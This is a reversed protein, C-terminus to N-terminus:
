GGQTVPPPAMEAQKRADWQEQMRAMLSDKGEIQMHEVIYKEDVIGEAYMWKLLEQQAYRSSPLNAGAKVEIDFDTPEVDKLDTLEFKEGTSVDRHFNYHVKYDYHKAIM